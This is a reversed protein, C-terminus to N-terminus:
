RKVPHMKDAHASMAADLGSQGNQKLPNGLMDLGKAAMNRRKIAMDDDFSGQAAQPGSGTGDNAATPKGSLADSIAKFPTGLTDTVSKVIDAM